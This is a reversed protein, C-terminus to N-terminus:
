FDGGQLGLTLTEGAGLAVVVHAQLVSNYDLVIGSLGGPISALLNVPPVAASGGAGAPVSVAVYAVVYGGNAVSVVVDHASASTSSALIADCRSGYIQANMLTKASTGDAAAIQVVSSVAHREDYTYLSM